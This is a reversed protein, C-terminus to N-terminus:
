SGRNNVEELAGQEIFQLDAFVQDQKKPSLGSRRLAVDVGQYDLGTYIAGAMGISLKWQSSCRIFLRLAHRNKHWVHCDEEVM